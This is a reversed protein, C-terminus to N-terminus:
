SYSTLVTVVSFFLFFHNSVAVPQTFEGILLYRAVLRLHTSLCWNGHRGVTQGQGRRLVSRDGTPIQFWVVVCM